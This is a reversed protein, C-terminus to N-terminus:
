RIVIKKFMTVNKTKVRMLKVGSSYGNNMDIKIIKNKNTFSKSLVKRGSLNFIDIRIDEELGPEIILCNENLSVCMKERIPNVSLNDMKKDVVGDTFTLSSETFLTLKTWLQSTIECRYDNSLVDSANVIITDTTDAVLLTDNRYWQYQNQSGGVKVYIKSSDLTIYKTVSDQKSCYIRLHKEILPEIDDFHLKNESLMFSILEPGHELSSPIDEIQNDYLNLIQLKLLEGIKEPIEIIQNSSLDLHVLNVLNGIEAPIKSINNDKLAIEKLSNIGTLGIPFESINSEYAHFKKLKKCNAIEAPIKELSDNMSINLFALSTLNGIEAPIEKLKNTVFDAYELNRLNGIEVPIVELKSRRVILTDVNIWGKIYSPLTKIDNGMFSFFKLSDLCEIEPPLVSIDKFDLNIRSVRGNVLTVGSWLNSNLSQNFDWDLKSTTNANAIAVLTLSDHRRSNTVIPTTDLELTSSSYLILNPVIDSTIVCQYTLVGIDSKSINIMDTTDGPILLNNRYWQYKNQSGNVEVFLYSSDNALFTSVTDQPSYNKSSWDGKLFVEIDGFQLANGGLRLTSSLIMSSIYGSFKTLVKNLDRLRNNTLTLRSLPSLQEFEPPLTVLNNSDLEVVALKTLNGIEKPISSLENKILNLRNLQTLEGIEPPLNSIKNKNLNLNELKKLFRIEPCISDIQNRFLTLTKLSDLERIQDPIAKIQNDGLDLYTLNALSCIVTPFEVFQNTTLFLTKLKSLYKFETPLESINNNSANFKELASLNIIDPPIISVSDTSLKLETVRDNIVTVGDWYRVSRSHDWDTKKVNANDIAVLALSDQVQVANSFYFVVFLFFHIRLIKLKFEM